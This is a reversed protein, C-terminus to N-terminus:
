LVIEKHKKDERLASSDALKKTAGAGLKTLAAEARVPELEWARIFFTPFTIKTFSLGISFVYNFFCSFLHIREDRCLGHTCVFM